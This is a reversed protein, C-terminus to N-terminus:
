ALIEAAGVSRLRACVAAALAEPDEGRLRDRAWLSGDPRAVFARLELEGSSAPSAHAGIASRCDADLAKALAREARLARETDADRLPAILAAVRVEGRRAEIALTGQGAAPVLEDLPTGVTLGLRELGAAALVIADLGGRELRRIRTDVNGAIAVVELDERLARLQAARRLSSTAVRAGERLEGLSRAGCLADRADARRPCGAIELGEALATPLDKASHVAADIEGALLADEIRDVWRRKDEAPGDGDGSTKITVLEVAADIAGAVLGAQALALPSGRTGLRLPPQGSV